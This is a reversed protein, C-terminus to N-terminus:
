EKKEGKRRLNESKKGREHSGGRKKKEPLFVCSGGGAEKKGRVCIWKQDKEIKQNITRGVGM